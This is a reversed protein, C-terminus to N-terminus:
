AVPKRSLSLLMPYHSSNSKSLNMRASMDHLTVADDSSFDIKEGPQEIREIVDGVQVNGFCSGKVFKAPLATIVYKRHSDVTQLQWELGHASNFLALFGVDCKSRDLVKALHRIVRILAQVRADKSFPASGVLGHTKALKVGTRTATGSSAECVLGNVLRHTKQRSLMYKRLLGELVATSVLPAVPASFGLSNIVDSWCERVLVSHSLVFMGYRPLDGLHRSLMAPTFVCTKLLLEVRRIFKVLSAVPRVLRQGPALGVSPSVLSGVSSDLRSLLHLAADNLDKWRQSDPFWHLKKRLSYLLWGTVYNLQKTEISHLSSAVRRDIDEISPMADVCPDRLNPKGDRVDTVQADGRLLWVALIRQFAETCVIYSVLRIVDSSHSRTPKVHERWLSERVAPQQFRSALTVVAAEVRRRWAVSGRQLGGGGRGGTMLDLTIGSELCDVLPSLGAPADALCCRAQDALDGSVAVIRNFASVFTSTEVSFPDARADGLLNVLEAEPTVDSCILESDLKWAAKHDFWHPTFARTTDVELVTAIAVQAPTTSALIRRPRKFPAPQAPVSDDVHAPTDFDTSLRPTVSPSPTGNAVSTSAIVSSAYVQQAAVSSVPMLTQETLARDGVKATKYDGQLLKRFVKSIIGNDTAATVM